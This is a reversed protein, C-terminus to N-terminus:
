LGPLSPTASQSTSTQWVGAVSCSGWTPTEDTGGGWVREKQRKRNTQIDEAMQRRQGRERVGKRWGPILWM